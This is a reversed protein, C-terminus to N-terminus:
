FTFINFNKVLISTEIFLNIFNEKVNELTTKYKGIFNIIMDEMIYIHMPLITYYIFDGM